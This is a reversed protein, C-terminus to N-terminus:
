WVEDLLGADPMAPLAHRHAPAALRPGRAGAGAHALGAHRGGRGQQWQSPPKGSLRWVELARQVRQTDGPGSPRAPRTSARWSPTCRRGATARPRNTWNVGYPTTPRQCRTWGKVPSQLLADHRGGAPCRAASASGQALRQADAVFRAAPLRRTPRPHRDPPAAGRRQRPTKASGIDLGRYVLPGLRRQHGRGPQQRARERAFAKGGGDQGVGHARGPVAGAHEARRRAAAAVLTWAVLATLPDVLCVGYPGCRQRRAGAGAVARHRPSPRWCLWGAGNPQAGERLSRGWGRRSAWPSTSAMGLHRVAGAAALAIVSQVGLAAPLASAWAAPSRSGPPRKRAAAAPATSRVWRRCPAHRRHPSRGPAWCWATSRPAGLGARRHVRVVLRGAHHVARRLHLEILATWPSERHRVIRAWTALVQCGSRPTPRASACRRPCRGPWWALVVAGFVAVAALTGRWDSGPRWRLRGAHPQCHRHFGPRHPGAGDDTRRRRSTCTACWRAPAAAAM